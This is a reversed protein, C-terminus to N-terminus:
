WIAQSYRYTFIITFGFLIEYKGGWSQDLYGGFIYGDVKVLTVSAGRDDCNAHFAAASWGNDIARYCRTWRSELSTVASLLSNLDQHLTSNGGLIHSIFKAANFSCLRNTCM